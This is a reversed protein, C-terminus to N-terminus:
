PGHINLLFFFDLKLNAKRVLVIDLSRKSIAKINKNGLKDVVYWQTLTSENMFTKLTPVIKGWSIYILVGEWHCFLHINFVSRCFFCLMGLSVCEM